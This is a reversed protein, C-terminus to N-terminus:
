SYSAWPREMVESVVKTAMRALMRGFYFIAIAALLKFAFNLGQETLFKMASHYWEEIQAQPNKALEAAQRVAEDSQLRSIGASTEQTSEIDLQGMRPGVQALIWHGDMAFVGVIMSCM